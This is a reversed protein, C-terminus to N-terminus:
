YYDKHPMDVDEDDEQDNSNHVYCEKNLLFEDIGISNVADFTKEAKVSQHDIYARMSEVLSDIMSWNIKLAPHVTELFDDMIRMYKDGGYYAQLVLWNWKTEFGHYNICQWGFQTEGRKGNYFLGHWDKEESFDFWLKMSLYSEDDSSGNENQKGAIPVFKDPIVIYSSSSSNSVYGLREKM